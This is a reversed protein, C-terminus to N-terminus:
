RIGTDYEIDISEFAGPRVTVVRERGGGMIGAVPLPRLTYTGPVLPIRYSGDAATTARGSAAGSANEAVIVAGELPRVCPSQGALEVPCTPGAIVHGQVGSSPVAAASTPSPGPM